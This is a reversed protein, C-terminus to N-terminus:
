TGPQTVRSSPFHQFLKKRRLEDNQIYERCRCDVNVEAALLPQAERALKAIM